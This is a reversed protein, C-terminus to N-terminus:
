LPPYVVVLENTETHEAVGLVQYYMDKVPASSGPGLIRTRGTLPGSPNVVKTPMPVNVTQLLNSYTPSAILGFDCNKSSEISRHVFVFLNSFFYGTTCAFGFHSLRAAHKARSFSFVIEIVGVYV